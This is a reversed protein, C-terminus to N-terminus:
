PTIGLDKLAQQSPLSAVRDRARIDSLVAAMVRPSQAMQTKRGERDARIEGGGNVTFEWEPFQAVLCEYEFDPIV